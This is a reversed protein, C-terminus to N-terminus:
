PKRSEQEQNDDLKDAIKVIEEVLSNIEIRENLIQFTGSRLYYGRFIHHPAGETDEVDTVLEPFIYGSIPKQPNHLYIDLKEDFHEIHDRITRSKLPSDPQINFFKQLFEGRNKHLSNQGTRPPWFFKSIAGAQIVINQMEDLLVRRWDPSLNDESPISHIISNVIEVSNLASTTRSRLSEEYFARYPPWIVFEENTTM